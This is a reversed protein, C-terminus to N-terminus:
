LEDLSSNQRESEDSSSDELGLLDHFKEFRALGREDYCAGMLRQKHRWTPVLPASKGNISYSNAKLAVTEHSWSAVFFIVEGSHVDGEWVYGTLHPIRDKPHGGEFIADNSERDLDCDSADDHHITWRKTGTLQVAFVVNCEADVHVSAGRGSDENGWLSKPHYNILEGQFPLGCNALIQEITSRKFIEANGSSAFHIDTSIAIGRESEIVNEINETCENPLGTVILPVGRSYHRIFDKASLDKLAIRTISTSTSSNRRLEADYRSDGYNYYNAGYDNTHCNELACEAIDSGLQHSGLPELCLRMCRPHTTFWINNVTRHLDDRPNILESSCEELCKSCGADNECSALEDRCKGAICGLVKETVIPPPPTRINRERSMIMEMEDPQDMAAAVAVALAFINLPFM